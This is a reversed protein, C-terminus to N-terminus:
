SHIKPPKIHRMTGWRRKASEIRNSLRASIELYAARETARTYEDDYVWHQRGDEYFVIDAVDAVNKLSKHLIARAAAVEYEPVRIVIFTDGM